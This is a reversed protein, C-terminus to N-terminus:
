KTAEVSISRLRLHTLALDAGSRDLFTEHVTSGEKRQSAMASALESAAQLVAEFGVSAVLLRSSISAPTSPENAAAFAPAL